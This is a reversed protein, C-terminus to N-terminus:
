ISVKSQLSTKKKREYSIMCNNANVACVKSELSTLLSLIQTMYQYVINKNLLIIYIYIYIYIYQYVINKNLLIFGRRILLMTDRSM